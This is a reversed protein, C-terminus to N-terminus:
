AILVTGGRRPDGAVDLRGEADRVVVHVGGFFLNHSPWTIVEEATGRLAEIIEDGLGGEINLM